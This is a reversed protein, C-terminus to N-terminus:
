PRWRKRAWYVAIAPLAVIAVLGITAVILQRMRGTGGRAPVAQWLLSMSLLLRQAAWLTMM